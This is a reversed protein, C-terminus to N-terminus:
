SKQEYVVIGEELAKQLFSNSTATMGAIEKETYVLPEVAIGGPCYSLVKETRDAFKLSTNKIILLDLDSGQHSDGRAFSGHLIIRKPKYGAAISRIAAKAAAPLHRVQSMIMTVIIIKKAYRPLAGSSLLLTSQPM